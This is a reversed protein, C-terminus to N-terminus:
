KVAFTKDGDQVKYVSGMGGHGILDMVEYSGIAPLEEGDALKKRKPVDLNSFQNFESDCQCTAPAFLWSTISGARMRRQVRGCRPCIEGDVKQSSKGSSPPM